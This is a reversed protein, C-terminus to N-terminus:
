EINCSAILNDPTVENSDNQERLGSLRSIKGGPDFQFKVSKMFRSQENFTVLRKVSISFCNKM